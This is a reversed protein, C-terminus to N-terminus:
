GASAHLACIFFASCQSWLLWDARGPINGKAVCTSKSAMRKWYVRSRGKSYPDSQGKKKRVKSMFNLIKHIQTKNNQRSCKICGKKERECIRWMKESDTQDIKSEKILNNESTKAKYIGREGKIKVLTYPSPHLFIKTRSFHGRTTQCCGQLINHPRDTALWLCLASYQPTAQTLGCCWLFLFLYSWFASMHSHNRYITGRVFQKTVSQRKKNQLLIKICLLIDWLDLCNLKVHKQFM